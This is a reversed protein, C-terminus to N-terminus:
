KTPWGLADLVDSANNEAQVVEANINLKFNANKYNKMINDTDFKIESLLNTSIEKPKVIKKYYYWGNKYIWDDTNTNYTVYQNTDIQQDSHNKGSITISVRAFFDHNGLNKIKIIRSIESKNTIDLNEGDEVEIENNNEDLRTEILQMKLSGFTIVNKAITSRTVYAIIFKISFLLIIVILLTIIINKKSYNKKM